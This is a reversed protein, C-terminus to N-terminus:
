PSAEPTALLAAAVTPIARRARDRLRQPQPWRDAVIERMSALLQEVMSRQTGEYVFGSVIVGCTDVVSGDYGATCRSVSVQPRSRRTETMQENESM